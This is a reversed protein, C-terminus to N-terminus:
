NMVDKNNNKYYMSKHHLKNNEYGQDLVLSSLGNCSPKSPMAACCVQAGDDASLPM